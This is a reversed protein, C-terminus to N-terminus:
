YFGYPGFAVISTLAIGFAAGLVFGGFFHSGHGPGGGLGGVPEQFPRIFVHTPSVRDVMGRHVRGRNDRIQVPKGVCRKCRDYYPHHSM